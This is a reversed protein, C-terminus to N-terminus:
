GQRASGRDEDVGMFLQEIPNDQALEIGAQCPVDIEPHDRRRSPPVPCGPGGIRAPM